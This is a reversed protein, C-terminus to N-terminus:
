IAQTRPFLHKPVPFSVTRATRYKDHVEMVRRLKLWQFASLPEEYAGIEDINTLAGHRTLFPVAGHYSCWMHARRVVAHSLDVDDAITDWMMTFFPRQCAQSVFAKTTTKMKEMNFYDRREGSTLITGNRVIVGAFRHLELQEIGDLFDPPGIELYNDLGHAALLKALGNLLPISVRERWGAILVGTFYRKKGAQRLTQQITRSLIDATRSMDVDNDMAAFNIMQLLDLRAIIQPGFPVIGDSIAELVGPECYDLVVTDWQSLIRAEEATVPSSLSGLYVGFSSPKQPPSHKTCVVNPSDSLLHIREQVSRPLTKEEGSAQSTQSGHVKHISTTISAKIFTRISRYAYRLFTLIGILGSFGIIAVLAWEWWEQLQSDASVAQIGSIDPKRMTAFTARTAESKVPSSLAWITDVLPRLPESAKYPEPPQYRGVPRPEHLRENSYGDQCVNPHYM